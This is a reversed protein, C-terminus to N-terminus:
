LALTLHNRRWYSDWDGVYEASVLTAMKVANENRWRAGTQKLRRGVVQKAAGEVPGSGISRGQKLRRRYNLRGIHKAFYALVPETAALSEPSEGAEQRFNGVWRCIGDWGDRVMCLTAASHWGEMAGPRDGFIERVAEALHESAHFIDLVGESGPMQVGVQNWIWAAGDALVSVESFDVIGLAASRDRWRAAFEEAPAMDILISRATPKALLRTAWEWPEAPPALERKLWLALRLERWGEITNVMVGDTQFEIKGPAERFRRAGEPSLVIDSSKLRAGKASESVRERADRPPSSPADEAQAAPSVPAETLGLEESDGQRWDEIRKGEALCTRRLTQESPAWGCFRKLRKGANAFGCGIGALAVLERARRTLSAEIGLRLDAPYGGLDCSQCKFYRRGLAISGM